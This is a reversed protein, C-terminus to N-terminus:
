PRARRFGNALCERHPDNPNSLKDILEDLSIVGDELGM